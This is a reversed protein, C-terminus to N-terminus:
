VREIAREGFLGAPRLLLFLLALVYPFWNEIGGSLLPGLYVEALKESAGVILGGVIAGGISTFGGIILVPLAKLVILSLSFQVGLRAGWLLGAVLGVLGAVAWVLVWMRQLRIGVALAALQDDAVARLSLGIRTKNFLLSLLLVLLGASGAAFLDFRSLMLGGLELPTDEIGLDLGHVQAGWLAQAVGEVVYSLGLTAMFLTIPPRNVLHRLVLRELLLALLLMSLLSLVFALWFPLGRELLSVFTLAAFLVMSGQAFNFVGSAKYILVFGIAVLSYMVGALLGGLLVELFFTM